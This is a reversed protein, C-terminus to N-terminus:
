QLQSCRNKKHRVNKNGKKFGVGPPNQRPMRARKYDVTGYHKWRWSIAFKTPRKQYWSGHESIDIFGKDEVLQRLVTLFTRESKIGLEKAEPYTFTIEGQNTIDYRRLHRSRKKVKKRRVKQHFRILVVLAWKGSLERFADSEILDAELM